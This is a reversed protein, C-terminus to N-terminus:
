ASLLGDRRAVAVAETRSRAGLRRLIASVHHGATKVSIVLREAIEANSAGHAVLALVEAQRGTLPGAAEAARQRAPVGDVGVERLM